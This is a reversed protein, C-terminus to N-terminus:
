YLLKTSAAIGMTRLFSWGLTNEQTLPMSFLCPHTQIARYLSLPRARHPRSLACGRGNNGQCVKSCTAPLTAVDSLWCMGYDDGQDVCRVTSSFSSGDTNTNTGEFTKYGGTLDCRYSYSGSDQSFPSLPSPYAQFRWDDNCTTAPRATCASVTIQPSTIGVQSAFILYALVNALSHVHLCLRQKMPTCAFHLSRERGGIACVKSLITVGWTVKGTWVYRGGGGRCNRVGKVIM